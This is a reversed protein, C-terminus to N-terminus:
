LNMEDFSKTDSSIRGYAIVKAKVLPAIDDNQGHIPVFLAKQDPKVLHISM